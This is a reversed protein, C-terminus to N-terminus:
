VGKVKVLGSFMIGVWFKLWALASVTTWTLPIIESAFLVNVSLITFSAAIMLFIFAIATVGIAVGAIGSLTLDDKM